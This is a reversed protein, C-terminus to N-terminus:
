AAAAMAAVAEALAAWILWATMLLVIFGGAVAASERLIVRPHPDHTELGLNSRPRDGGSTHGVDAHRDTPFVRIVNGTEHSSIESGRAPLESAREPHAARTITSNM